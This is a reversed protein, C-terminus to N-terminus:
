AIVPPRILPPPNLSRLWISTVGVNEDSLEMLSLQFARVTQYAAVHCANCCTKSDELQCCDALEDDSMNLQMTKVSTQACVVSVTNSVNVQSNAVSSVLLLVTIFCLNIIRTSLSASNIMLKEM